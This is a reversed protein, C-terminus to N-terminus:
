RQVASSAPLDQCGDSDAQHRVYKWLAMVMPVTMAANYALHLELRPIVLQLLSVPEPRGFLTYGTVSQALLLAHEMVHWGGIVVTIKWWRSSEGKFGSSLLALGVFTLAVYTFHLWESTVLSPWLSGIAGHAHARHEGLFVVEYVQALHEAWHALVWLCLLILGRVHWQRTGEERAM